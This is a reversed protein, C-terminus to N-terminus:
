VTGPTNETVITPHVKWISLSENSGRQHSSCRETRRKVGGRGGGVIIEGLVGHEDHTMGLLWRETAFERRRALGASTGVDLIEFGKMVAPKIQADIREISTGIGGIADTRAEREFRKAVGGTKREVAGDACLIGSCEDRKKACLPVAIMREDGPSV